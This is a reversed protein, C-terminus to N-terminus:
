RDNVDITIGEFDAVKYAPEVLKMEINDLSYALDKNRPVSVQIRRSEWEDETKTWLSANYYGTQDLITIWEFVGDENLDISLRYEKHGWQNKNEEQEFHTILEVNFADKNPWYVISLEPIEFGDEEGNRRDARSKIYEYQTHIRAAVEPDSGAIEEKLQQMALYGPKGLNNRFYYINLDNLLVEGLYYRAMQSSSSIAKFNLIPSNVLMVFALLVLGMVVNVRSQILLWNDRLKIIGILYGFAFCSLLFWVSLAWLREPTFGYQAVRAFIGYAAIISFIPLTAVGVLIFRHLIIPYPKNDNGKHYIANVFFLSLAMLWLLLFSGSRTDWLKDLGTFPLTVLFGLSVFVLLPLLFKMLTQLITSINDALYSIKRFIHIAFAAALTLAPIWFWEERLLETFFTIGVLDFLAAGLHLIGFFIMMFLVTIAFIIANRWSALFLSEYNITQKNALLKIYMTAKFCAILVALTFVFFTSEIDPFASHQSGIYAGLLSVLLTFPLLSKVIVVYDHKSAILLFLSPFSVFFTVLATLWSLDTGPWINHEISQYLYALMLGQILAIIGINLRSVQSESAVLVSSTKNATSSSNTNADTNTM